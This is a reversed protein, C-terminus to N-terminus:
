ASTAAAAPPSRSTRLIPARQRRSQDTLQGLAARLQDELAGSRLIRFSPATRDPEQAAAQPFRVVFRAFGIEDVQGVFQEGAAGRYVVQDGVTVIQKWLNGDALSVTFKKSSGVVEVSSIDDIEGGDLELELPPANLIEGLSKGVLPIKTGLLDVGAISQLLEAADTIGDIVQETSLNLFDLLDQGTGTTAAIQVGALNTIDAWTFRVQADALEFPAAVDGSLPAVAFRASLEM